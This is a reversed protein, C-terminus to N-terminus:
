YQTELDSFINRKREALSTRVLSFRIECDPINELLDGGDCNSFHKCKNSTQFIYM